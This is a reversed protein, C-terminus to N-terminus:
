VQLMWTHEFVAGFYDVGGYRQVAWRVHAHLPVVLAGGLTPDAALAALYADVLAALAPYSGRSGWGGAVPALLLAHIMHATVRGDGASFRNPELGPAGSALEPLIVLAPLQAGGLQAPTAELPYTTVGPVALAGLHALAQVLSGM